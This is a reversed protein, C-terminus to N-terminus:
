FANHGGVARSFPGCSSFHFIKSPKPLNQVSYGGRGRALRSAPALPIEVLCLIAPKTMNQVTKVMVGGEMSRTLSLFRPPFFSYYKSIKSRRDQWQDNGSGVIPNIIAHNPSKDFQPCHDTTLPYHTTSLSCSRAPSGLHLPASFRSLQPPRRPSLAAAYRRAERLVQRCCVTIAHSIVVALAPRPCAIDELITLGSSLFCLLVDCERGSNRGNYPTQPPVWAGLPTHPSCGWM